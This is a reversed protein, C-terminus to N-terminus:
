NGVLNSQGREDGDSEDSMMIGGLVYGEWDNGRLSYVQHGIEMRARPNSRFENLYDAGVKEISLGDRMFTPLEMGRVDQFLIDIRRPMAEHGYSRLLLLRGSASYSVILFSRKSEFRTIIWKQAEALIEALSPLEPTM